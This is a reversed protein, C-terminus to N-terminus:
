NRAPVSFSAGGMKLDGLFGVLMWGVHGNCCCGVCLLLAHGEGHGGQIVGVNNWIMGFLGRGSVNRRM